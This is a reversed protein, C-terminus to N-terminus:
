IAGRACESKPEKHGDKVNVGKVYDIAENQTGYRPEIHVRDSLLKKVENFRKPNVFEIYGQLHPTENQGIEKAFILYSCLKKNVLESYCKLDDASWNNLTFVYNRSRSMLLIYFLILFLIKSEISLTTPSTNGVVETGFKNQV